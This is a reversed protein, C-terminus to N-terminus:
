NLMGLSDFVIIIHPGPPPVMRLLAVGFFTLRIVSVFGLIILFKRENWVGVGM